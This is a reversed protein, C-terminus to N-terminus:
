RQEEREGRGLREDLLRRLEELEERDLERPEALHVSVASLLSGGFFVDVVRRLAARGARHRAQAARYVATKGDFEKRVLGTATLTGLMTRVANTTPPDPIAATVEAVTAAGLRYVADMIQRERPSLEHEDPLPM